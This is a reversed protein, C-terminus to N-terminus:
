HLVAGPPVTRTFVVNVTKQRETRVVPSGRPVEFTTVGEASDLIAISSVIERFSSTVQLANIKADLWEPHTLSMVIRSIQYSDPDLYVSGEIDPTDILRDPAFDVRIYPRRKIKEVGGYTFCHANHFGSDALQVLGPINLQQAPKGYENVTTIVQGRRYMWTASGDIVVTDVALPRMEGNRMGELVRREMRFVFPFEMGLTIARDANERLQGFVIALSLDTDPDPPGPHVCPGRAVVRMEALRVTVHALRLELEPSAGDAGVTVVTDRPLYGLHRARLHYSGPALGSLVFRGVDDTFFRHDEPLLSVVSYGLRGGLSDTVTGHIVGGQARGTGPVMAVIAVAVLM